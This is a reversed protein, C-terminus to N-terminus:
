SLPSKNAGGKSLAAFHGKTCMHATRKSPCRTELSSLVTKQSLSSGPATHAQRATVLPHCSAGGWCRPCPLAPCPMAALDLQLLRPLQPSPLDSIKQGVRHGQSPLSTVGLLGCSGPSTAWRGAPAKRSSGGPLAHHPPHLHPPLPKRRSRPPAALQGASCAQEESGGKGVARQKPLRFHLPSFVVCVFSCASKM